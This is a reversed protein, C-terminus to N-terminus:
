SHKKARIKSLFEPTFGLYSALMYQPIRQVFEPNYEYFTNYLEEGSLNFMYQIRRQDAIRVRELIIRFYKNIELSNQLILDLKAKSIKLVIADETAQINLQSQTRNMFSDFDTLWWDEIGFNITKEIGKKNIFFSRFCGKVIFHNYNCYHGEKLIYHKASIKESEIINLFDQMEKKSPSVFKLIHNKLSAIM